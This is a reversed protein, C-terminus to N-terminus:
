PMEVSGAECAGNSPRAVGGQSTTVAAGGIATCAAAPVFNLAPNAGLPFYGPSGTLPGFNGAAALSTFGSPCSDDSDLNGGDDVIAGGGVLCDLGGAQAAIISNRVTVTGNGLGIGGNSNGTITVFSFNMATFTYVAGGGGANFNNAVTSNIMNLVGTDVYIAGGRETTATNAIFSSLSVNLMGAGGVTIAGGGEAQNGSFASSTITMTGGHEIAGGNQGAFNNSFASNAITAIGTSNVAGGFNGAGAPTSHNALTSGNITLTGLNRVAGGGPAAGFGNFISLNNLTLNGATNVYFFRLLPGTRTITAGSGNITMTTGIVPFGNAGETVNDVTLVDYASATLTITNAGPCIVEDNALNIAAVLAPVDGPGITPNCNPLVTFAAAGSIQTDPNAVTVSVTGTLGVDVATIQATLRTASVFTTPRDAGNWRVIAGSAFNAGDVTLTFAGSGVIASDPTLATITPAPGLTPVGGPAPTPTPPVPVILVQGPIILDVNALCNAAALQPVTTNYRPAISSLTDGQIVTYSGTWDARPACTATPTLSPTATPEPTAEPTTEPVVVPYIVVEPPLDELVQLDQGERPDIPRPQSWGCEPVILQDNPLGDLGLDRPDSLCTFTMEGENVIVPDRAEPNIVVGGDLVIVQMLSRSVIPTASPAPTNTVFIPEPSPTQTPIAPDPTDSPRPTPDVTPTPAATVTALIENLRLSASAEGGTFITRLLITSGIEMEAGNINLRVTYNQPGQIMITDPVAGCEPQALGTRFYFAQMPTRSEPRIAPLDDIADNQDVRDRAVWAAREDFLTRLWLGDESRADVELTSDIPVSGVVNANATPGSRLPAEMRTSVVLVDETLIVDEPPVANEVEADGVLLMLVAQGPLTGPLDAQLNLVSIGWDGTDLDLPSTTITRFDRLLGRDGPHTFYDEAQTEIFTSNVRSYGYCATNRQLGGCSEGVSELARDVLAQCAQAEQASGSTSLLVTFGGILFFMVALFVLPRSHAAAQM